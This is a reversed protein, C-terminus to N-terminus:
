KRRRTLEYLIIGASVSVNLSEVKGYIPISILEDCLSSINKRIGKGENGFVIASRPEFVCNYLDVKSKTETGYLKFGNEKLASIAKYINSLMCIKIHNTAGASTKVVTHNVKASNKESVLIADVGAAASTRIIAGFNHPDQIEDLIVFLVQKQEAIEEMLPQFDYYEFDDAFAAVGQSIGESKNTSDFVKEFNEKSAREIPIKKANALKMIRSLKTGSVTNLIIIKQISKPNFELAELTPNLGIVLM